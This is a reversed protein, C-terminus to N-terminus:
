RSPTLLLDRIFPFNKEFVSESFQESITHNQELQNRFWTLQRKAFNRTAQKAMKVSQDLPAKGAVHALLEPVGVAKMAPVGAPLALAALARVEELAGAEIMADFRAEVAAYLTERPPAMLVVVPRAIGALPSGVAEAQWDALTKGSARVVEFARILRQTDGAAIKAASVPDLAALEARFAEGGLREHLATVEARVAGSVPPIFSLGELLAKLYLGTGGAIVPLRSAALADEIERVALDLWRGVSCPEVAPLVGYLRHPIRAEDEPSPRATLLRLEKYVQMSDANIVTGAFADAAAMAFASKGGATPGAVILVSRKETM